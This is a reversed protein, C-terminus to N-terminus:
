IPCQLIWEGDVHHVLHVLCVPHFLGTQHDYDQSQVVLMRDPFQTAVSRFPKSTLHVISVRFGTASRQKHWSELHDLDESKKPKIGSCRRSREDCSMKWIQRKTIKMKVTLVARAILTALCRTSTWSWFGFTEKSKEPGRRWGPGFKM